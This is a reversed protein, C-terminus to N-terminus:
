RVHEFLLRRSNLSPSSYLVHIPVSLVLFTIVVAANKSRVTTAELVCYLTALYHGIVISHWFHNSISYSYQKISLHMYKEFSCKLEKRLIDRHASDLFVSKCINRIGRLRILPDITM